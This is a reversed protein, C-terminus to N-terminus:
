KGILFDHFMKEDMAHLRVIAVFLCSCCLLKVKVQLAFELFNMLM